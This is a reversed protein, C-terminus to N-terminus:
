KTLAKANGIQNFAEGWIEGLSLTFPANYNNNIFFPIVVRATNRKLERIIDIM